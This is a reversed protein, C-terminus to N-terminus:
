FFFHKPQRELLQEQKIDRALCKNYHKRMEAIKNMEEFTLSKKM